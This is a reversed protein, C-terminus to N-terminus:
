LEYVDQIQTASSGMSSSPQGSVTVPSQVAEVLPTLNPLTSTDLAKKAKRDLWWQRTDKAFIYLLPASGTIFTGWHGLYPLLLAFHPGYTAIFGSVAVIFGWFIINFAVVHGAMEEGWKKLHKWKRWNVILILAPISALSIGFVYWSHGPIANFWDLIYGWGTIVDNWTIANM